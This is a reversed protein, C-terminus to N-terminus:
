FPLRELVAHQLFNQAMSASRLRKYLIIYSFLLNLRDGHGPKRGGRLLRIGHRFQTSQMADCSFSAYLKAVAGSAPLPSSFHLTEAHYQPYGKKPHTYRLTEGCDVADAYPQPPTAQKSSEKGKNEALGRDDAANVASGASM